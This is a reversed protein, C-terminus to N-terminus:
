LDVLDGEEGGTGPSARTKREATPMVAGEVRRCSAGLRDALEQVFPERLIRGRIRGLGPIVHIEIEGDVVTGWGLDPSIGLYPDLHSKEGRFVAVHGAFREPVYAGEARNSLSILFFERLKPPMPWGFVRYCQAKLTAKLARWRKPAYRLRRKVWRKIIGLPKRIVYVVQQALRLRVLNEWHDRLTVRKIPFPRHAPNSSQIMAVLGIEKGAKCLQQAIEYAVVGGFCYGGLLYPGDPQVMLIERAYHAAMEEITTHPAMDNRWGVPQLGFVPRDLGLHKALAQFSNVLGGGACVCFFPNGQGGPNLLVLSTWGKRQEQDGLQRALQEITPAEFFIGPSVHRNLREHIRVLMRATLLSDAGLDFINDTVGIPRVGLSEEWLEALQQELLNRPRVLVKEPDPREREPAPLGRRDIKGNPTRPFVELVVFASPIMYNPLKEKLFRRLELASPVQRRDARLYAILRKRGSADEQAVVVSELVAPHTGLVSEIEGLEIRFGRIKVQHDIRGLFELIGDHRYRVLDGTRYLRGGPTPGFPDPVFKEATLGPQNHYGRAVGDGGILLEGETGLPVPHLESDVVYVQTNAIPRGIPTTASDAGEVRHITSWITTETPGYMNWLSGCRELLQRALAGPLAEGGCLIKLSKAGPKWGADLLLRWTAPTAQMLTADSKSLLELLRAGDTVVDRSALIVRAGVTLPLFCELGAIDFSLTTVALLRDMSTLGPEHAMSALFNVVACHPIEVGKPKGTSGSTYIVYALDDPQAPSAFFRGEEKAIVPWDSDCRVVRASGVPLTEALHQQTLLLEIGADKAMYALRNRPYNPDLPVYAGGTKLVAFLSVLMDVSRDLAIGVLAGRRAGLKQLHHALQCARTELEGYTLETDEFSVAIADPTAQVQSAFLQHICLQKHYGAHTDKRELLLLHHETETMPSFAGASAREGIAQPQSSM